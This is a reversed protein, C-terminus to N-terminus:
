RVKVWFGASWPLIIGIRSGEPKHGPIYSAIVSNFIMAGMDTYQYENPIRVNIKGELGTKQNNVQLSVFHSSIENFPFCLKDQTLESTQIYPVSDRGVM